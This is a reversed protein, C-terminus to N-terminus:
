AFGSNSWQRRAASQSRFHFFVLAKWVSNSCKRNGSNTQQQSNRHVKLVPYELDLSHRELMAMSFPGNISPKGILFPSKGHCVTLWLWITDMAFDMQEPSSWVILLRVHLFSSHYIPHKSSNSLFKLFDCQSFAPCWLPVYDMMVELAGSALDALHSTWREGGVELSRCFLKPVLFKDIFLFPLITDITLNNQTPEWTLEKSCRRTLCTSARGIRYVRLFLSTIRELKCCSTLAYHHLVVWGVRVLLDSGGNCSRAGGPVFDKQRRPHKSHGALTLCSIPIM